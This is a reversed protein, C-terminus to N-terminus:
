SPFVHSYYLLIYAFLQITEFNRAFTKLKESSNQLCLFQFIDFITTGM